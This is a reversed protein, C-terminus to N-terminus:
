LPKLEGPPRESGIPLHFTMLATKTALRPRQPIARNGARCPVVLGPHLVDDVFPLLHCGLLSPTSPQSIRTISFSCRLRVVHRLTCAAPPHSECHRLALLRLSVDVLGVNRNVLSVRCCWGATVENEVSRRCRSKRATTPLVLLLKCPVSERGVLSYKKRGASSAM